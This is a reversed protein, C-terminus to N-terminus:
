FPIESMKGKSHLHGLTTGVKHFRYETERSNALVNEGVREGDLLEALAFYSERFM